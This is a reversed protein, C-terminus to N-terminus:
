GNAINNLKSAASGDGGAHATPIGFWQSPSTMGDKISNYISILDVLHEVLMNDAKCGIYKEIHKVKVGWPAFAQVMNRIRESITQQSNGAITKNCLNLAYEELDRGIIALICSRVRRSGQNAALEYIDRPDTLKNVGTKTHRVHEVTFNIVKSTNTELDIAFAQMESAGQTRSLERIGYQINGYCRAIEEALRISSGKVPAGGKPYSYTAKTALALSSCVENLKEYVRSKERPFRKAFEFQAVAEAIARSQEIAVTGKNTSEHLQVNQHPASVPVSPPNQSM